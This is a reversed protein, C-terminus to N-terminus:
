PSLFERAAPPDDLAGEELTEVLAKLSAIPTRLEHSVNGVFERRMTETRRLETVDQVVLLGADVEPHGASGLPIGTAKVFRRTEHAAGDDGAPPASFHVTQTRPRGAALAGTLVQQLEHDRVAEALTRGVADGPLMLLHMAAANVREVRLDRNVIVIGDAMNALAAAAREREIALREIEARFRRVVDGFADAVDGVPPPAHPRAISTLDGEALRRTEEGLRKLPHLIMSQILASSVVGSVAAAALSAVVLARVSGGAALEFAGVALCSVLVGVATVLALRTVM